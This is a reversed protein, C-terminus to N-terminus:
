EADRGAPAVRGIRRPPWYRAVVRWRIREAPITGFARADTSAAGNDGRVTVDHGDLAAVRKVLERSPNRPDPALVVEGERLRGLRRAVLLRDGPLIAPLMSRGRVEVVDLVRTAVLWAAVIGALPAILGRAHRV